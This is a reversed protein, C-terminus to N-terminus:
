LGLASRDRLSSSSPITLTTQRSQCVLARGYSQATFRPSISRRLRLTSGGTGNQNEGDGAQIVFNNIVRHFPVNNYYNAQALEIVRGTPRPAKDEFLEFVMDGFGGISLRLSRNTTVVEASVLSPNSSTVTITLPNGNPDYADIPVHLPSGVAM